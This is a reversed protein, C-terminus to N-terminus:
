GLQDLISAETLRSLGDRVARAQGDSIGIAAALDPATSRLIKPLEGFHGIIAEVDHEEILRPLHSLLRYGRPTVSDDLESRKSCVGVAEAVAHPDFLMEGPLDALTELCEEIGTSDAPFYDRLVFWREDGVGSMLEALQLQILRGESGLEVIDIEIDAAIRSVLETQQLVGVVDRFTVLDQVELASLTATRETLATRYRDLTRLAQEARYVISRAREVPHKKDGVYVAISSLRESLSVVPVDITRAVREATRHRTGTESTPVRHDPVLHVNARAIRTVDASVIIAGDMKALESFRQPTFAADIVFGGSCINLVDPGDGVIIIAGMNGQLIRDLGERLPTGPAVQRIAHLLRADSREIMPEHYGGAM